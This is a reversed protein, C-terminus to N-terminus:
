LYLVIAALFILAAIAIFLHWIFHDYPKKRSYFITGITYCLGGALLLLIFNLGARQWIQPLILVALWGMALYLIMSLKPHAYKSTSKLLIGAVVLLWEVVLVIWGLRGPIICLCIPTYTGAIALLISIHDLKRFVLKWATDYPMVHYLCSGGFMFIMCVMYIAVGICGTWGDKSYGYVSLFPLTFLFILMMVGHSIANGVEEGFSLHVTDKMLKPTPIKPANRSITNNM